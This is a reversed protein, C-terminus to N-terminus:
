FGWLFHVIRNNTTCRVRWLEPYLQRTRCQWSRGAANLRRSFGDGGMARDHWKEAVVRATKCGAKGHARLKGWGAGLEQRHGCARPANHASVSSPQVTGGLVLLLTIGIGVMSKLAM